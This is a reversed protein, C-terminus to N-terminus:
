AVSWLSPSSLSSEGPAPNGAVTSPFAPRRAPPVSPEHNPPLMVAVVPGGAAAKKGPGKKAPPPGDGGIQERIQCQKLVLPASPKYPQVRGAIRYEADGRMDAIVDPDDFQCEITFKEDSLEFFVQPPKAPQGRRVQHRVIKVKGKLVVTKDLYKDDAEAPDKAYAAVFQEATLEPYPNKSNPILAWVGQVAYYGLILSAATFVVIRKIRANRAKIEDPDRRDRGAKRARKTTEAKRQAEAAENQRRIEAAKEALARLRVQEQEQHKRRLEAEYENRDANTITITAEQTEPAGASAALATDEAQNARALAAATRRQEAAVASALDILAEQTPAAPIRLSTSLGAPPVAVAGDAVEFDSQLTTQAEARAARAARNYPDLALAVQYDALAQRFNGRGFETLGRLLSYTAVYKADEAVARTFDHLAEEHRGQLHLANGRNALAQSYDPSIEIARSFDQIAEDLMELKTYAVGRDNYARAYRPNAAIARHFDDLAAANEGTRLLVGGRILMAPVFDPHLRLAEACDDLAADFDAALAHARARQLRAQASTPDLRMAESFDDVAQEYQRTQTYLEGRSLYAVADRPNLEIVRGLDAIAQPLSKRHQHALARQLYVEPNASDFQEALNFNAVARDYEGALQYSIGRNLYGGPSTPDLRIVEGFDAVALDYRGQRRYTDGRSTYTRPNLPDLRLAETYDAAARDLDGARRYADGRNAHALPSHPNLRLAETYDAIARDYERRGAYADGRGQYAWALSPDLRLAQTHDDIARDYQGLDAFAGGRGNLAAVNRPDLRLAETLDEIAAPAKGTLRYVLGRSLRAIVNRPDLRLAQSYDAVAKDYEGRHRFADGRHVYPAAVTVDSQIAATFEIAAREYEGQQAFAQGQRVRAAVESPTESRGGDYAENLLVEVPESHESLWRAHDPPLLGTGLDARATDGELSLEHPLFTTVLGILLSEGGPARAEFLSRLEPFGARAAEGASQWLAFWELDHLLRPDSTPTLGSLQRALAAADVDGAALPGAKRAAHLERWLTERFPGPTGALPEFCRNGVVADLTQQGGRGLRPGVADRALLLELTFWARDVARGLVRGLTIPDGRTLDTSSTPEPGGDGVTAPIAQRAHIRRLALMALAQTDTM